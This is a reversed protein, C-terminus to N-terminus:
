VPLSPIYDIFHPIEELVYGADGNVLKHHLNGSHDM